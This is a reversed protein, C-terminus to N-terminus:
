ARRETIGFLRLRDFYIPGDVTDGRIYLWFSSSVFKLRGKPYAYSTELRLGPSAPDPNTPNPIGAGLPVTNLIDGVPPLSYVNRLEFSQRIDGIVGISLSDQPNRAFASGYELQIEYRKNAFRIGPSHIVPLTWFFSILATGNQDGYLVADGDKGDAYKYLKNGIGLYLSDIAGSDITSANAFDGSFFMWSYLNTSYLSVLLKNPGIKFGCFPGNKYKFSRCQRYFTNSQKMTQLYERVIPDVSNVDTAGVQQTINFRSLSIIGNDTVLYTDTSIDLALNGHAIGIDLNYAWSFVNPAAALATPDTGQWIQTKHRGIFAIYSSISVIAELNDAIGHKNSIDIFNVIKQQDNFWKFPNNEENTYYVLMTQSFERYDISAAGPGLGWIRNHAVFLYNFPPPYDAYALAVHNVGTFAPVTATTTTITVTNGVQAATLITLITSSALVNGNYVNLKILGGVPYKGLIFTPINIGVTPTFSFSSNSIRNFGNAYETVYDTVVGFTTGDWYVQRNVGNCIMLKNQFQVYRPICAVSMPTTNLVNSLISTETDYSYINGVSYSVSDITIDAINDIFYNGSLTVTVIGLAVAVSDINCYTTTIPFTSTHYRVKIQTDAVYLATNTSAFSLSSVSNVVFANATVDQVFDAVYLILDETGDNNLFPFIEMISSDFTLDSNILRTGYRVTGRGVPFPIINDLVYAFKSPLIKPSINQNMGAIPVTFELTNFAGEQFFSM